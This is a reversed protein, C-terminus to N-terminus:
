TFRTKKEEADVIRMEEVWDGPKKDWSDGMVSMNVCNAESLFENTSATSLNEHRYILQNADSCSRM